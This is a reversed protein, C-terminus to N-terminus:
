AGESTADGSTADGSTEDDSIDEPREGAVVEVEVVDLDGDIEVHCADGDAFFSIRALWPDRSVIRVHEGSVYQPIEWYPRDELSTGRERHFEEVAPHQAALGGFSTMARRGCVACDFAPLVEFDLQDSFPETIRPEVPGGCEPCIGRRAQEIGMRSWLEFATVVEEPDRGRVVTPPARVDLVAEGCGRCEISFTEDEYSAWLADAGCAYCYGDIEFPELRPSDTYTGATVARALRRGAATLEYGDEAKSVFHPRLQKLHYNFQASDAVEVRDYLASFRLPADRADEQLATVVELRTADGLLSFADASDLGASAASEDPPDTM